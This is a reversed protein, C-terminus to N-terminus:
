RKLLFREYFDVISVIDDKVYIESGNKIGGFRDLTIEQGSSDLVRQGTNNEIIYNEEDVSKDFFGLVFKKTRPNKNFSINLMNQKM